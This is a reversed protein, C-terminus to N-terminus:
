GKQMNEEAEVKRFQKDCHSQQKKPPLCLPRAASWKRRGGSGRSQEARGVKGWNSQAEQLPLMGVSGGENGRLLSVLREWTSRAHGHKQLQDTIGAHPSEFKWQLIAWCWFLSPKAEM